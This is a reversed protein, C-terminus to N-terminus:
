KALYVHDLYLVTPQPQQVVFVGFGEIHEMDMTRDKPANKVKELSIVLDNWGHGLSFQQNYRDNFEMKYEKHRNDHIRANIVFGAGQPNYISCHLTRYGRWDHPFYFLHIGSFQAVSLQVRVSKRGHRVIEREERLQQVNVWRYREFPTEFDSLVPFDWAAQWEDMGSRLLPWVAVSLMVLVAVRFLRLMRGNEWRSPRVFFAYALLCGLQNRCVDGMDPSRNGTFMQLFEVLFGFLLVLVFISLFPLFPARVHGHEGIHKHLLLSFALFFLIHGLDWASQFSRSSYYGPGGWFFLPLGVLLIAWLAAVILTDKSKSGMITGATAGQEAGVPSLSLRARRRRGLPTAAPGPVASMWRVSGDGSKRPPARQREWSGVEAKRLARWAGGGAAEACPHM